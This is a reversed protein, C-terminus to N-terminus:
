LFSLIGIDPFFFFFYAMWRLNHLQSFNTGSNSFIDIHSWLWHESKIIYQEDHLDGCKYVPLITNTSVRFVLCKFPITLFTKLVAKDRHNGLMCSSFNQKSNVFKLISMSLLHSTTCCFWLLRFLGFKFDVEGNSHSKLYTM